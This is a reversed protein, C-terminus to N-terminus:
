SRTSGAREPGAHLRRHVTFGGGAERPPTEPM